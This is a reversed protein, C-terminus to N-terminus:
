IWEWISNCNMNIVNWSKLRIVYKCINIRIRTMYKRQQPMQSVDLYSRRLKIEVVQLDFAIIVWHTHHNNIKSPKYKMMYTCWFSYRTAYVPPSTFTFISFQTCHRVGPSPPLIPLVLIPLSVASQKTRNKCM